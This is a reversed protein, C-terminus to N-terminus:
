HKIVGFHCNEECFFSDYGLVHPESISMVSFLVHVVHVAYFVDVSLWVCRIIQIPPSMNDRKFM